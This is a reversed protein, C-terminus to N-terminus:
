FEEMKITEKRSVVVAAAKSEELNCERVNEVVQVHRGTVCLCMQNRLATLSWDQLGAVGLPHGPACLFTGAFGATHPPLHEEGRYLM